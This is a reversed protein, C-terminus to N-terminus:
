CSCIPNHMHIKQIQVPVLRHTVPNDRRLRRVPLIMAPRAVGQLFSLQEPSYRRAPSRLSGARTMRASSLPCFSEWVLEKDHTVEFLRRDDPDVILTNGNPLRQNMGRFFAQLPTSDENAYLWPIAQTLPDYELIRTEGRRASMTSCSCIDM